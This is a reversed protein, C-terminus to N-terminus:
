YSYFFFISYFFTFSSCHGFSLLVFFIRVSPERSSSCLFMGYAADNLSTVSTPELLNWNVENEKEIADAVKEEIRCMSFLPTLLSSHPALSSSLFHCLLSSISFLLSSHTLLYCHLTFFFCYVHCLLFLHACIAIINRRM